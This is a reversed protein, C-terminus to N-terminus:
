LKRFTEKVKEFDDTEIAVLLLCAYGHLCLMDHEITFMHTVNDNMESDFVTVTFAITSGIICKISVEPSINKLKLKSIDSALLLGIQHLEKKTTM